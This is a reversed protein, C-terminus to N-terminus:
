AEKRKLIIIWGPQRAKEVQSSMHFSALTSCVSQQTDTLYKPSFLINTM